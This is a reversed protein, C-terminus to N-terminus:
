SKLFTCVFFYKINEIIELNIIFYDSKVRKIISNAIAIFQLLNSLHLITNKWHISICLSM